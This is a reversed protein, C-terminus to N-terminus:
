GVMWGDVCGDMWEDLGDMWGEMCGDRKRKRKGDMYGNVCCANLM